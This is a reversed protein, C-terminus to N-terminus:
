YPTSILFPVEASSDKFCNKILVRELTLIPPSVPSQPSPDEKPEGLGAGAAPGWLRAQRGTRMSGELRGEYAGM